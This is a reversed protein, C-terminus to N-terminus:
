INLTQLTSQLCLAVYISIVTNFYSSSSLRTYSFETLFQLKPFSSWLLLLFSMQCFQINSHFASPFRKSFTLFPCDKPGNFIVKLFDSSETFLCLQVEREFFFIMLFDELCIIRNLRVVTILCLPAM